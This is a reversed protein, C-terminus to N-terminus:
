KIEQGCNLMEEGFFPNLCEENEPQIWRATGLVPSMPCQFIFAQRKDKPQGRVIDATANSFPEFPMRVEKLTNGTTLKDAFPKLVLRVEKPLENYKELVDPLHKNYDDLKDSSLDSTVTEVALIFSEPLTTALLPASSVVTKEATQQGGSATKSGASKLQAQSDLILASQVVVSEGENLGSVIEINDDGVTGAVVERLQYSGSAISDPEKVAVYVVPKDRTYLVASRPIQLVPPTETNVIGNATQRNLIRRQPNPLVVRVRATRTEGNLNPDIFTIPASVTENPLSTLTVEVTQNIRLLPLDSEYADFVFWLSSFDGIEFLNDNEAVYQGEFVKRSVVTGDFPAFITLREKPKGTEELKKIDHEELGFSLLKERSTELESRSIANTGTQYVKVNEYYLRQATLVDPSYIEALPQDKAVDIGVQNVYLKEIRGPVRASLIRYTTEDNTIIGAVRLTKKLVDKKVEATEVGIISATSASLKLTDESNTGSEGSDEYVPGLRMGCITCKAKPDQSTVSPDMPCQYFLIKRAPPTLGENDASNETTHKCGSVSFTLLMLVILLTIPLAIPLTIRSMTKYFLFLFPFNDIIIDCPFHKNYECLIEVETHVTIFIFSVSPL